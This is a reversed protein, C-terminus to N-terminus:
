ESIQRLGSQKGGENDRGTTVLVRLEARVRGAFDEPLANLIAELDFRGKNDESFMNFHKAADALVGKVDITKVEVEGGKFEMGKDNQKIVGKVKIGSIAAATKDDLDKVNKITNNDSFLKRVDFDIVDNWRNLVKEMSLESRQAAKEKIREIYKHVNVNTLLRSAAAKATEFKKVTPYAKQYCKGDPWDPNKIKLDAFKQQQLTLKRGM